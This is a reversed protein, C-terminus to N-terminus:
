SFIADIVAMKIRLIRAMISRIPPQFKPSSNKLGCVVLKGGLSQFGLFKSWGLIVGMLCDVMLLGGFFYFFNDILREAIM